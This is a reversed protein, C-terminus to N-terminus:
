EDAPLFVVVDAHPRVVYRLDLTNIQGIPISRCRGQLVCGALNQNFSSASENVSVEYFDAVARCSEELKGRKTKTALANKSQLARKRLRAGTRDAGTIKSQGVEKIRVIRHVALGKLIFVQLLAHFCVVKLGKLIFM